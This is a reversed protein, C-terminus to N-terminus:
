FEFILKSGMDQLKAEAMVGSPVALFEEPTEQNYTSPHGFDVLRGVLMEPKVELIRRVIEKNMDTKKSWTEYSECTMLPFRGLLIGVVKGFDKHSLISDIQRLTTTKESNWDELVLIIPGDNNNLVDCSTGFGLQMCEIGGPILKGSVNDNGNFVELRMERTKNEMLLSKMWDQSRKTWKSLGCLTPGYIAPCNINTWFNILMTIDSYGIVMKKSKEIEFALDYTLYRRLPTIAYGGEACWICKVESDNIMMLFDDRRQEESGAM